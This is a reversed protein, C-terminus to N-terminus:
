SKESNEAECKMGLKGCAWGVPKRFMKKFWTKVRGDKKVGGETDSDSSDYSKNTVAPQEELQEETQVETQEETQQAQDVQYQNDQPQCLQGVTCPSGNVNADANATATATATAKAGKSQNDCGGSICPTVIQPQEQKNYFENPNANTNVNVNVNATADTSPAVTVPFIPAIPAAPPAPPAGPPAPPAAFVSSAPASDTDARADANVNAHAPRNVSESIPLLSYV